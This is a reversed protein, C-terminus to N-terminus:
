VTFKSLNQFKKDKYKEHFAGIVEQANGYAEATDLTRIGNEYAMNLIDFSKALSPKGESNNIGYNVGLQVTGLILKNLMKFKILIYNHYKLSKLEPVWFLYM